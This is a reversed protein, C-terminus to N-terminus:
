RRSVPNSRIRTVSAHCTVHGVRTKPDLGHAVALVEIVEPMHEVIAMLVKISHATRILKNVNSNILRLIIMTCSRPTIRLSKIAGRVWSQFWRMSVM